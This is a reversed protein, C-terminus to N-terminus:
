AGNPSQEAQVYLPAHAVEPAQKASPPAHTARELASQLFDLWHEKPPLHVSDPPIQMAAVSASQLDDSTHRVDRWHVATPPTHVTGGYSARRIRPGARM